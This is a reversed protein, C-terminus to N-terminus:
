KRFNECTSNVHFFTDVMDSIALINCIPQGILKQLIDSIFRNLTPDILAKIVRWKSNVVGSVLSTIASPIGQNEYNIEFYSADTTFSVDTLNMHYKGNRPVVAVKVIMQVELNEIASFLYWQFFTTKERLMINECAIDYIFMGMNLIVRGRPKIPLLVIKWDGNTNMQLSFKPILCKLQIASFPQDPPFGSSRFNFNDFDFCIHLICSYVQSVYCRSICNQGNWLSKYKVLINEFDISQDAANISPHITWCSRISRIEPNWNCPMRFCDFLRTSMFIQVLLAILEKFKGTSHQVVHTLSQAISKSDGLHCKPFSDAEHNM